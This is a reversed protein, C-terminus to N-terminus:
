ELTRLMDRRFPIVEDFRGERIKKPLDPDAVLARGIAVLSYDGREMQEVVDDLPRLESEEGKFTATFEGSLAM